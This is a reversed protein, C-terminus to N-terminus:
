LVFTRYGAKANVAATLGAIQIQLAQRSLMSRPLPGSFGAFSGAAGAAESRCSDGRETSNADGGAWVLCLEPM